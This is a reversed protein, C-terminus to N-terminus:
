DRPSPSTYLLCRKVRAPYPLCWRYGRQIQAQTATAISFSPPVVRASGSESPSTAGGKAASTTPRRAGTVDCVLITYMFVYFIANPEYLYRRNDYRGTDYQISDYRVFSHRIMDQSKWGPHCIPPRAGASDHWTM